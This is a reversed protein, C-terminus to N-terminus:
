DSAKPIQDKLAQEWAQPYQVEFASIEVGHSTEVTLSLRSYREADDLIGPHSNFAREGSSMREWEGKNRWNPRSKRARVGSEVNVNIVKDLAISLVRGASALRPSQLLGAYRPEYIIFVLYKPNLVLRGVMVQPYSALHGEYYVFVNSGVKSTEM